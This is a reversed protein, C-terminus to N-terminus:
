HWGAQSWRPSSCQRGVPRNEWCPLQTGFDQVSRTEDMRATRCPTPRSSSHSRLCVTGVPVSGCVGATQGLVYGLLAFTIIGIQNFRLKSHDVFRVENKM